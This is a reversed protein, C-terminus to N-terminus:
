RRTARSWAACRRVPASCTRRGSWRTWPARGCGSRWHRWASSPRASLPTSSRTAQWAPFGLAPRSGCCSGRPAPQRPPGGASPGASGRRARRRAAPRVRDASGAGPHAGRRSPLRHGAGRGAPGAAAPDRHRRREAVVRPGEGTPLPRSARGGRSGSCWPVAMPGRASPTTTWCPRGGGSGPRRSSRSRAPPPPSGGPCATTACWGCSSAGSTGRRGSRAESSRSSATRRRGRCSCRTPPCSTSCTKDFLGPVPEFLTDVCTDFTDMSGLFSRCGYYAWARSGAAYYGYGPLRDALLNANGALYGTGWGQEPLSLEGNWRFVTASEPTGEAQARFETITTGWFQRTPLSRAPEDTVPLFAKEEERTLLATAAREALLGGAISSGMLVVAAAAAVARRRGPAGLVVAAAALVGLLLALLHWGTQNPGRSIALTLQALLLVLAIAVRGRTVTRGYGLGLAVLVPLYLQAETFFRWPFRFVLFHGPLQTAAVAVLATVVATVVGPRRALGRWRVFALAPVAFVALAAVPAAVLSGTWHGAVAPTLTVSGLLVDALNPTLEGTNGLLSEPVERTTYDGM